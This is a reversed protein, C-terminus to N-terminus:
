FIEIVMNMGKGGKRGEKREREKERVRYALNIANKKGERLM